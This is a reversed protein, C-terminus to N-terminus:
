SHSPVSLVISRILHLMRTLILCCTNVDYWFLNVYYKIKNKAGSTKAYDIWEMSPSADKKTNIKVIDGDKLIGWGKKYYNKRVSGIDEGCEPDLYSSPAFVYNNWNEWELTNEYLTVDVFKASEDIFKDSAKQVDFKDKDM